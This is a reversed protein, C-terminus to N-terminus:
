CSCAVLMSRIKCALGLSSPVDDIMPESCFDVPLLAGRAECFCHNGVKRAGRPGLSVLAPPEKPLAQLELLAEQSRGLRRNNRTGLPDQTGPRESPRKARAPGLVRHSRSKSYSVHPLFESTAAVYQQNNKPQEFGPPDEVSFLCGRGAGDRRVLLDGLVRRVFLGVESDLEGEAEFPHLMAFQWFPPRYENSTRFVRCFFASVLFFRTSM